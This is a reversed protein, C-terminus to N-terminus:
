RVFVEFEINAFKVTNGKYIRRNKVKTGNVFTGNSSGGERDKVRVDRGDIVISAHYGSVYHGDPEPICIDNDEDRGVRMDHTLDYVEGTDLRVLALTGAPAEPKEEPAPEAPKPQEPQPAAKEPDPQTEPEPVPAASATTAAELTYHAAGFTIKDGFELHASGGKDMRVGNVRTGNTSNLDEILFEGNTILVRAHHQSVFRNDVILDCDSATGIINSEKLRYERGTDSSRLCFDTIQNGVADVYKVTRRTVAHPGRRRGGKQLPKPESVPKEKPREPPLAAPEPEPAPQPKPEPQPEAPRRIQKEEESIKVTVKKEPEPAPAPKEEAAPTLVTKKAEKDEGSESTGNMKEAVEKSAQAKLAALVSNVQNKGRDNQM